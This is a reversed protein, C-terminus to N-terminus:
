GHFLCQEEAQQQSEATAGALGAIAGPVVVATAGLTQQVLVIQHLGLNQYRDTIFVAVFQGLGQEIAARPQIPATLGLEVLRQQQDALARLGGFHQLQQLLGLALAM